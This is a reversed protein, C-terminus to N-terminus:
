SNESWIDGAEIRSSHSVSRHDALFQIISRAYEPGRLVLVCSHDRLARLHQNNAESRPNAFVGAHLPFKIPEPLTHEVVLTRDCTIPFAPKLM